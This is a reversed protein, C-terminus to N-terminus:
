TVTFSQSYAPGRADGFDRFGEQVLDIELTYDGPELPDGAPETLTVPVTLRVEDGPVMFEPLEVASDAVVTSTGDVIRAHVRVLGPLGYSDFDVWPSGAGAHRVVVDYDYTSGSKGGALECASFEDCDVALDVEARLAEDPLDTPFGSPLLKGEADLEDAREGPLIWLGQANRGDPVVLRANLDDAAAWELPAIVAETPPDEGGASDFPEFPLGPLFWQDRWFCVTCATSSDFAVTDLDLDNVHDPFSWDSYWIEAEDPLMERYAYLGGLLFVVVAVGAALRPLRWAALGVVVLAVLAVVMARPVFSGFGDFPWENVQWFVGTITPWNTAGTFLEPDRLLRLVATLVLLTVASGGVVVLIRRASHRTALFATGCALFVPLFAENYRGYVLHDVRHRNVTMFVVSAVFMALAALLVFGAVLSSVPAESWAKRTRSVLPRARGALVVVGVAFLGFTAALLYWSQGIAMAVLERWEGPDLLTRALEGPSNEIVDNGAAWRADFLATNVLRVLVFGVTLFTTNLAALRRPMRGVWWAVWLFAVGVILVGTYRPHVAYALAVCPGTLLRQWTPRDTLSMWSTLVLACFVPVAAAETWAHNGAFTVSPYVAGAAAGLLAPTTAVGLIRRLVVYLMPFLATLLLANVVMAFTYLHWPDSLVAFGPILFLSYGFYYYSTAGMQLLPDEGLFWRPHGLLGAEDPFVLPGRM